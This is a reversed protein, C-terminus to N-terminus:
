FFDFDDMPIPDGHPHQEEKDLTALHPNYFIKRNRNEPM